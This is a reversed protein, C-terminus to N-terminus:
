VVVNGIEVSKDREYNWRRKIEKVTVGAKKASFPAIQDTNFPNSYKKIIGSVSYKLSRDGKDGKDGKVGDFYDVGKIPTYGAVGQAGVDGKDGKDGKLGQIGQEGREGREGQEGQRGPEGTDGKEGKEGPPGPDGKLKEKDFPCVGLLTQYQLLQYKLKEVKQMLVLQNTNYNIRSM